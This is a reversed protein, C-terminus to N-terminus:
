LETENNGHTVKYGSKVSYVGSPDVSWIWVYDIIRDSLAISLILDKDRQNFMVNVKAEEWVRKWPAMLDAMIMDEVHANSQMPVYENDVDILWLM